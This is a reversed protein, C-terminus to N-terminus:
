YEESNTSELPTKFKNTHEPLCNATYHTTLHMSTGQDM